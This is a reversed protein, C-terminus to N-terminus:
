KSHHEAAYKKFTEAPVSGNITVSDNTRSVNFRRLISVLDPQKDQVALRMASLAGRLTDELLQLTEPDHSLGFAGLKIADGGDTAWLAVTSVTRLASNLANAQDSHGSIKGTGALRQARPVDVLAWATAKADIRAMDRGLGSTTAFTTGGAARSALAEKVGDETGILALHGDPFAVAGNKDTKASGDANKEPLLLYTGGPTTKTVAGRAVLASTLRDVNFRGEAAIIVDADKGLATRPSTAVMVLDIDQSPKLGADLLFQEADGDTTIKDTQQFFASSLPSSRLDAVRVVGVTVADGPILSLADTKAFAAPVILAAAALALLYKKM